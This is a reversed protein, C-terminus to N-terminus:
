DFALNMLAPYVADVNQYPQEPDIIDHGLKLTRPFEFDQVRGGHEKWRAELVEAIENNVAIDNANTVVVISRARPPAHDAEALVVFGLRYVEGLAHTAYRPYTERPGPVKERLKPDWWQFVNPALLLANTLRLALNRSVGYPAFSPAIIIARDLDGRRQALYAAAVAGQSLGAVVVTDGLGHALDLAHGAAGLLEEASLRALADTMRPALGHRPLRPILVNWGREYLMMGLREFQRPCSTFGHLLVAVRGVRRGHTFLRTACATSINGDDGEMEASVRAMTEQYEYVPQSEEVTVARPRAGLAIYATGVVFAAGGLVWATSAWRSRAM